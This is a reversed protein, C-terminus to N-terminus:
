KVNVQDLVSAQKKLTSVVKFPSVKLVRATDRIGSGNLAMDVITREIGPESGRYHYDLIFTRGCANHQCHYRQKNEGTFGKKKVMSASCHPCKVQVQAM